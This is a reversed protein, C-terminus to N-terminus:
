PSRKVPALQRVLRTTLEGPFSVRVSLRVYPHARLYKTDRADRWLYGASLSRIKIGCGHTCEDISLIKKREIRPHMAEWVM